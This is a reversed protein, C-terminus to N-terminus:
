EGRNESKANIIEIQNERRGLCLTPIKTIDAQQYNGDPGKRRGQDRQVGKCNLVTAEREWKDTGHLLFLRAKLFTPDKNKKGEDRSSWGIM